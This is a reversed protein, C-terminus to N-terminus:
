LHALMDVAWGFMHPHSLSPLIRLNMGNGAWLDLAKVSNEMSKSNAPGMEFIKRINWSLEWKILPKGAMETNNGGAVDMQIIKRISGM